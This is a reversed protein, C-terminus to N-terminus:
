LLIFIHNFHFISWVLVVFVFGTTPTECRRISNSFFTKWSWCCLIGLSSGILWFWAKFSLMKDYFALEVNWALCHLYFLHRFFWSIFSVWINKLMWQVFVSFLLSLSSSVAMKQTLIVHMKAKNSFINRHNSYSPNSMLWLYFHLLLFAKCLACFINSFRYRFLSASYLLM